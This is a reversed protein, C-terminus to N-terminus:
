RGSLWGFKCRVDLRITEAEKPRLSAIETNGEDVTDPPEPDTEPDYEGLVPTPNPPSTCRVGDQFTLCRDLDRVLLDFSTLHSCCPPTAPGPNIVVWQVEVAKGRRPRDRLCSHFRRRRRRCHSRWFALDLLRRTLIPLIM